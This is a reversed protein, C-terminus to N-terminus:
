LRTPGPETGNSATRIAPPMPLPMGSRRGMSGAIFLPLLSVQGVASPFGIRKAEHATTSSFMSQKKKANFYTLDPMFHPLRKRL